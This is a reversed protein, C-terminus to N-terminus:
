KHYRISFKFTLVLTPDNLHNWKSYYTFTINSRNCKSHCSLVMINNVTLIISQDSETCYTDTNPTIFSM